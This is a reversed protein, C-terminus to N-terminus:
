EETFSRDLSFLLLFAMSFIHLSRGCITKISHTARDEPGHRCPRRPGATTKGQGMGGHELRAHWMM